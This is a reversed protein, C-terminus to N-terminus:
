TPRSTYSQKGCSTHAANPINMMGDCSADCDPFDGIVSKIKNGTCLECLSGVKYYGVNCVVIFSM